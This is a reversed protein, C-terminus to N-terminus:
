GILGPLFTVSAPVYTVLLLVATNIIFFPIMAKSIREVSLKSIGSALYLCSGVPPTTLGMVLNFCMFVGIHVPDMGLSTLIPLLIPALITCAPTSDMFTGVFLMFLNLILLILYKNDTINLLIGVVMQPVREQTLIYAFITSASLIIMVSGVNKASRWFIEPLDRLKLEKSALGLIIAIVVALAASETATVIGSSIGGIIILPLLVTPLGEKFYKWMTANDLVEGKPIEHSHKKSRGLYAVYGMQALGLAVGPILGGMFLKGISVNTVSGYIIMLISPPIIAGITSSAVTIATSFDTTYGEEEMAPIMVSGIAVTDATALGNVGGFLMSVVVNVHALGGKLRGVLVKSFNVLRRTLGGTNMLEGCLIFLPLAVFVFSDLSVTMKQAVLTLSMGNTMLYLLSSVGLSFAIPMGVIMFIIFLLFMIWINM